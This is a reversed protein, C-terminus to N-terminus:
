QIRYLTGNLYDLGYVEGAQDEGFASWSKSNDEFLLLNTWEDGDQTAGWIKGECFDGYLYAGQLQALEKGRYVYGSTVSCGIDHPYSIIPKTLGPKDCNAKEFCSPGEFYSWGFNAGVTGYPQRDVEEWSNEGVDGLYMDGTLRDFSFRWPNRLGMSFLELERSGGEADVRWVNGFPVSQIQSSGPPTGGGGSGDGFSVYLKRDVPNFALQGGFHNDYQHEFRFLIEESGPDARNPDDVSVLFRSIFIENRDGTYYVYFRRSDTFNPPFAVSLMGREDCCLPDIRTVKGSLDLFPTELLKGDAIVRITGTQETVFLRGSGDGANTVLTPRRLGKVVETVRLQPLEAAVAIPLLLPMLRYFTVTM